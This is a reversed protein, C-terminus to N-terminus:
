GIGGLPVAGGPLGRAGGRLEAGQASGRRPRRAARKSGAAGGPSASSACFVSSPGACIDSPLCALSGTYGSSGHRLCVGGMGARGRGAGGRGRGDGNRMRITGPVRDPRSGRSRSPSRCWIWRAQSPRGPVSTTQRSGAPASSKRRASRAAGKWTRWKMPWPSSSGAVPFPTSKRSPGSPVLAGSGPSANAVRMLSKRLRRRTKRFAQSVPRVGSPAPWSGHAPTAVARTRPPRGATIPMCTGTASSIAM